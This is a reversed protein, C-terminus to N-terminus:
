GGWKAFLNSMAGSAQTLESKHPQFYIEVWRTSSHGLMNALMIKHDLSSLPRGSQDYQVTKAFLRAFTHRFQHPTLPRLGAYRCFRKLSKWAAVRSFKFLRPRRKRGLAFLEMGLADSVILLPPDQKGRKLRKVKITTRGNLDHGLDSNRLNLAESTRVGTELLLQFFSRYEGEIHPLLMAWETQLIPDVDRTKISQTVL